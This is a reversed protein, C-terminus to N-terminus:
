INHKSSIKYNLASACSKKKKTLQFSPVSHVDHGYISCYNNSYGHIITFHPQEMEYRNLVVGHLGQVIFVAKMQFKPHDYNM